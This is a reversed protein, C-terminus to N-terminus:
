RLIVTVVATIPVFIGRLVICLVECLVIIVSIILACILRARQAANSASTCTRCAVIVFGVAGPKRALRQDALGVDAVLPRFFSWNLLLFVGVKSSMTSASDAM